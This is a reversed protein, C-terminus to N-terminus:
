YYLNSQLMILPILVDSDAVFINLGLIIIEGSIDNNRFIKIRYHVSTVKALSVYHPDVNLEDNMRNVVLWAKLMRDNILTRLSSRRSVNVSFPANNVNCSPV